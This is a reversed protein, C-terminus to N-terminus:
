TISVEPHERQMMTLFERMNYADTPFYYNGTTRTEIILLRVFGVEKLRLIDEIAVVTRKRFLSTISISDPSVDISCAVYTYICLAGALAGFILLIYFPTNHGSSPLLFITIAFIIGLVGTIGYIVHPRVHGEETKRSSTREILFILLVVGLFAAIVTM